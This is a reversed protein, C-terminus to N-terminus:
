KKFKLQNVLEGVKKGQKIGEEATFRYHIGGILRSLAAENAYSAFSNFSRNGYQNTYTHDTFSFNKGFVAELVTALAASIVAHNSAYEPHPPTPIVPNWNSHGLVTRIYSVPRMLNYHYKTKFASILAENGAIGHKCYLTAAEQLSLKKLVVLQTVINTAHAPVNYQGPLDAWFKAVLSDTSSLATSVTYVENVAKYFVSGQDTSYVPPAIPQTTAALGPIFSRNNGWYPHLPKGFGPATPVWLGPGTPATYADSTTNNYAEHGGDTKSWEFINAAVQKGFNASRELEEPSASNIMITRLDNELSDIASSLAPTTNAFLKKTILSMAGNASSPWYYKKAPDATPLQIGAQLQSTVSQGNKIGPAVSEYLALGAYAYARFSVVSNFGATGKTLRLYLNMWAVAVDPSDTKHDALDDKKCSYLLSAPMVACLLAFTFFVRKM